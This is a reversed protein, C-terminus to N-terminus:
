RDSATLSDYVRRRTGSPISRGDPTQANEGGEVQVTV